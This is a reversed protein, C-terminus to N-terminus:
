AVTYFYKRMEVFREEFSKVQKYEPASYKLLHATDINDMIYAYQWMVDRKEFDEIFKRKEQKATEIIRQLDSEPINSKKDYWTINGCPSIHAIKKYDGHEMVGSNCVLVGNGFRGMFLKFM